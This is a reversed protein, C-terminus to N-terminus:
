RSASDVPWKVIVNTGPETKGVPEGTKRHLHVLSYVADKLLAWSVIEIASV